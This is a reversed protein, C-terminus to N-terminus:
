RANFQYIKLLGILTLNPAVFTNCELYKALHSAMGGTLVVNIKQRKTFTAIIGSIEYLIGLSTGGVMCDATSKGEANLQLEPQEIQDHLLPLKGTFHHMAKLRLGYGPSILGGTHEKQENMFDYTICTGVDVVLFPIDHSYHMAGALAALRDTGLTQPTTYVSTFPLPTTHRLTLTQDRNQLWSVELSKQATVDCIVAPVDAYQMALGDTHYANRYDWFEANLVDGNSNILGIKAQTNGFDIALIREM